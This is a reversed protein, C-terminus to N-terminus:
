STLFTVEILVQRSIFFLFYFYSLARVHIPMFTFMNDSHKVRRVTNYCSSKYIGRESSTVIVLFFFFFFWCCGVVFHWTLAQMLVKQQSSPHCSMQLLLTSNTCRRWRVDGHGCEMWWKKWQLQWRVTKLFFYRRRRLIASWRIQLSTHLTSFFVGQEKYDHRQQYTFPHLGDFDDFRHQSM